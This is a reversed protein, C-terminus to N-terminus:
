EIDWFYPSFMPARDQPDIKQATIMSNEVSSHSLFLNSVHAMNVKNIGHTLPWSAQNLAYGQPVGQSPMVYRGQLSRQWTTTNVLSLIGLAIPSYGSIQIVECAYKHNNGITEFIYFVSIYESMCKCVNLLCTCAHVCGTHYIIWIFSFFYCFLPFLYYPLNYRFNVFFTM